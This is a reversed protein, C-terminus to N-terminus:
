RDVPAPNRGDVTDVLCSPEHNMDSSGCLALHLVKPALVDALQLYLYLQRAPSLTAKSRCDALLGVAQAVPGPIKGMATPATDFSVPSPVAPGSLSEWTLYHGGHRKAPTTLVAVQKPPATLQGVQLGRFHTKTMPPPHSSEIVPGSIEMKVRSTGFWFGHKLAHLENEEQEELGGGLLKRKGYTVEPSELVGKTSGVPSRVVNLVSCTPLVTVNCLDVGARLTILKQLLSVLWFRCRLVEEPLLSKAM